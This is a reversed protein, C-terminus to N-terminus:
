AARPTVTGTPTSAPPVAGKKLRVAGALEEDTFDALAVGSEAWRLLAVGFIARLASSLLGAVVLGIVGIAILVGGGAVGASSGSFLLFAGLGGILLSPLMLFLFVAAGIRIGGLIQTGWREKFIKGSRKIAAVPGLGELIVLPLVFFTILAWATSLLSGVILRVIGLIAGATGGGSNTGNGSLMQLLWGVITQILAWGAIAGLHQTARAFEGEVPEGRLAQDAGAVLAASCIMAGFVALYAGVAILPIGGVNASSDTSLLVIGGGAILAGPLAAFIGLVPWKMLGPNGRLVALSKNTLIKGRNWGSTM